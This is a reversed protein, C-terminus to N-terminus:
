VQPIYPRSLIVRATNIVQVSTNATIKGDVTVNVSILGATDSSFLLPIDSESADIHMKQFRQGSKDM